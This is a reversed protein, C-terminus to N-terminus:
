QYDAVFAPECHKHSISLRSGDSVFWFAHEALWQEDTILAQPLRAM